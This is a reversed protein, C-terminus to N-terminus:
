EHPKVFWGRGRVMRIRDEAALVAIAKVATARAVGYRESITRVSPLPRRPAIRGSTIEERLLDAVQVYVPTDLERDIEGGDVM